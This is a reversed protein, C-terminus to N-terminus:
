EGDLPRMEARVREAFEGRLQHAGLLDVKFPLESAEFDDRLRARQDWTLTAPQTLLLDLDSFPRARGTARSGFVWAQADPLHRRLIAQVEARQAPTLQVDISATVNM